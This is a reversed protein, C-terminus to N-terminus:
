NHKIIYIYEINILTIMIKRYKNLKKCKMKKMRNNLNIILAVIMIM